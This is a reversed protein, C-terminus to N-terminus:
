SGAPRRPSRCGPRPRPKTGGDIAPGNIVGLDCIVDDDIILALDGMVDLDTIARRNSTGGRECTAGFDAFITDNAAGGDEVAM